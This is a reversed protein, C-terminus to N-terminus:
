KSFCACGDCVYSGSSKCSNCCYWPHSAEYEEKNSVGNVNVNMDKEGDM